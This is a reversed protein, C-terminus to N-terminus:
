EIEEYARLDENEVYPPHDDSISSYNKICPQELMEPKYQTLFYVWCERIEGPNVPNRHEDHTMAIGIKHRNYLDPYAELYDLAAFKDDDIEYVEGEVNEGKGEIFLLFPIAYQSGVIMPYKKVTEGSGIFRYTGTAPDTMIHANPEGSKLTGYSFVLHKQAM